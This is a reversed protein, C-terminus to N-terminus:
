YVIEFNLSVNKSVCIEGVTKRVESYDLFLNSPVAEKVTVRFIFYDYYYTFCVL